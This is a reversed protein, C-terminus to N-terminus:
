ADEEALLALLEGMTAVVASAGADHLEHADHYGWDVGIGRVGGNVAMAMDFVTDGIM